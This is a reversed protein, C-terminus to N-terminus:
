GNVFLGSLSILGRRCARVAPRIRATVARSGRAPMVAVRAATACGGGRTRLTAVATRVRRGPIVYPSSVGGHVRTALRRGRSGLLRLSVISQVHCARARKNRLTLNYEVMGAFPPADRRFTATLGGASCAPTVPVPMLKQFEMAGHECVPTPDMPARVVGFGVAIRLGHSVPECNGRSPEGPGYLDPSLVAAVQASEGPLVTVTYLTGPSWGAHTPLTRGGRALLTVNLPVTLGCPPGALRNTVTLLYEVHGTANSEPVMAYTARLQAATCPPPPPLPDTVLRAPASAGLLGFGVAAGVALIVVLRRM